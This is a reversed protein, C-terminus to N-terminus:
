LDDPLIADVALFSKPKTRPARLRAQMQIQVSALDRAALAEAQTISALV